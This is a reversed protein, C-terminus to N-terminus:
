ESDIELNILRTLHENPVEKIVPINFFDVFAGSDTFSVIKGVKGHLKKDEKYGSGVIVISDISLMHVNRKALIECAKFYVSKAVIANSGNGYLYTLMTKYVITDGLLKSLEGRENPTLLENVKKLQENVKM